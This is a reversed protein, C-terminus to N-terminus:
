GVGAAKKALTVGTSGGFEGFGFHSLVTGALGDMAVGAIGVILGLVPATGKRVPAPLTTKDLGYHQLGFGAATGAIAALGGVLKHSAKPGAEVEQELEEVERRAANRESKITQIREKAEDRKELARQEKRGLKVLEEEHKNVPVLVNKKAVSNSNGGVIGVVSIKGEPM